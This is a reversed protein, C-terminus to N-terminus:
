MQYFIFLSRNHIKFLNHECGSRFKFDVSKGLFQYENDSMWQIERYM